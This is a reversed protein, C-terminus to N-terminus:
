RAPLRRSLMQLVPNRPDKELGKALTVRASATDGARLEADALRVLNAPSEGQIEVMRRYWRAADAANGLRLSLEAIQAAIRGIESDDATLALYRV